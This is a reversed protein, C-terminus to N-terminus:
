SRAQDIVPSVLQKIKTFRLLLDHESMPGVAALAYVSELCQLMAAATSLLSIDAEVVETPVIDVSGDTMVYEAQVKGVPISQSKLAIEIADRLTSDRYPVEVINVIQEAPVDWAIVRITRIQPQYM